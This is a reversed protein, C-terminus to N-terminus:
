GGRRFSITKTGQTKDKETREGNSEIHIRMYKITNSVNYKSNKFIQITIGIRVM